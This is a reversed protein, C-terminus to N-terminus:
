FGVRFFPGSRNWRPKVQVLRWHDLSFRSRPLSDYHRIDIESHAVLIGVQGTFAKELDPYRANPVKRLDHDNEVVM